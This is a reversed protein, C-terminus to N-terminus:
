NEGKIKKLFEILLEERIRYGAKVLGFVLMELEAKDTRGSEYAAWLVGLTGRPSLGKFRAV